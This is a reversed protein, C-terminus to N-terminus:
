LITPQNKRQVNASTQLQVLFSRQRGVGVLHLSPEHQANLLKARVRPGAGQGLRDGPRPARPPAHRPQQLSGVRVPCVGAGGLDLEV